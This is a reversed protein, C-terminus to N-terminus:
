AMSYNKLWISHKLMLIDTIKELSTAEFTLLMHESLSPGLFNSQCKATM